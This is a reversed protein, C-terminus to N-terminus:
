EATSLVLELAYATPLAGTQQFWLTMPGYGLRDVRIAEILNRQLDQPGPHGWILMRSVDFGADFVASKQLAFFAVLDESVYHVLRMSQVRQGVPIDWHIYDADGRVVSGHILVTQAGRLQLMSPQLPASSAEHWANDQTDALNVSQAPSPNGAIDIQRLWVMSLANGMIALQEGKGPHWSRQDDTSYEWQGQNEVGSIRILRTNDQIMVDTQLAQPAATDLVCNVMVIESTNGSDDRARVWITKAGDGNVDFSDGQGRSWSKGLDFSVEWGELSSVQWAGIRTVGDTVNLGTDSFSLVPKQLVKGAIPTTSPSPMAVTSNSNSESQGAGGSCAVLALVFPALAWPLKEKCRKVGLMMKKSEDQSQPATKVLHSSFLRAVKPPLEDIAM